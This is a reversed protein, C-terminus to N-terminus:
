RARHLRPQHRVPGADKHGQSPMQQQISNAPVSPEAVHREVASMGVLLTLIIFSRTMNTHVRPGALLKM